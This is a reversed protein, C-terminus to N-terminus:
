TSTSQYVTTYWANYQTSETPTCSAKVVDKTLGSNYVTTATIAVTEENPEVTENKTSSAVDPRSAVCNYMVHRKAHSDGEFQFLLAFHAPAAGADEVLVGDSDQIYGLCDKLFSDPLKALTLDGDYGNNAVSTYYVINDAYWPTTEGNAALSISRAGPLAVPTGYTASGDSAITAVAYYAKSLGYRIKNSDM